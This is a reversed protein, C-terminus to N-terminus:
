GAATPLASAHLTRSPSHCWSAGSFAKRHVSRTLACDSRSRVERHISLALDPGGITESIKLTASLLGQDSDLLTLLLEGPRKGPLESALTM